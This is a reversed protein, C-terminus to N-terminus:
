ACMLTAQPGTRHFWRPPRIRCRAAVQDASCEEAEAEAADEEHEADPQQTLIVVQVSGASALEDPQRMPTAPVAPVRHAVADAADAVVVDAADAASRCAKWLWNWRRALGCRNSKMLAM